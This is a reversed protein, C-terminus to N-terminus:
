VAFLSIKIGCKFIVCLVIRDLVANKILGRHLLYVIHLLCVLHLFPIVLYLQQVLILFQGFGFHAGGPYKKNRKKNKDAGDAHNYYPIHDQLLPHLSVQKILLIGFSFLVNHFQLM